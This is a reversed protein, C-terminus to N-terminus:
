NNSFLKFTASGIYHQLDTGAIFGMENNFALDLYLGAKGDLLPLFNQFTLVLIVFLLVIIDTLFLAFFYEKWNMQKIVNIGLVSYFGIEIKKLTLNLTEIDFLIMRSIHIGFFVTMGLTGCILVCIQIVMDM